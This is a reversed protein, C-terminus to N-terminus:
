LLSAYTCLLCSVTFSLSNTRLSYTRCVPLSTNNEASFNAAENPQWHTLSLKMRKLSQLQNNCNRKNKVTEKWCSFFIFRWVNWFTKANSDTHKAQVEQVDTEKMHFTLVHRNWNMTSRISLIVCIIDSTNYSNYICLNLFSGIHPCM